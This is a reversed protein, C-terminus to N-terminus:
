PSPSYRRTAEGPNQRPSLKPHSSVLVDGARVHEFQPILPHEEADAVLQAATIEDAIEFVLLEQGLLMAHHVPGSPVEKSGFGQQCGIAAPHHPGPAGRRTAVSFRGLSFFYKHLKAPLIWVPMWDRGRSSLRESSPVKSMLGRRSSLFSRLSSFRKWSRVTLLSM